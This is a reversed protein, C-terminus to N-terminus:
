NNINEEKKEFNVQVVVVVVVILVLSKQILKIKNKKKLFCFSGVPMWTIKENSIQKELKRIKKKNKQYYNVILYM